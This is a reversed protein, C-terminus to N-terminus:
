LSSGPILVFLCLFLCWFGSLLVLGPATLSSPKNSGKASGEISIMQSSTLMYLNHKGLTCVKVHLSLLLPGGLLMIHVQGHQSHPSIWPICFLVVCLPRRPISCVEKRLLNMYQLFIKM